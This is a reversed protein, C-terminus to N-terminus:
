EDGCGVKGLGAYSSGFNSNRVHIYLICLILQIFSVGDKGM